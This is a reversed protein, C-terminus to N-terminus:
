TKMSNFIDFDTNQIRAYEKAFEDEYLALGAPIKSPDRGFQYAVEFLTCFGPNNQQKAWLFPAPLFLRRLALHAGFGNQIISCSGVDVNGLVVSIVSFPACLYDAAKPNPVTGQRIHQVLTQVTQAMRAYYVGIGPAPEWNEIFDFVNEFEDRLALLRAAASTNLMYSREAIVIDRLLPDADNPLLPEREGLLQEASLLHSSNAYLEPANKRLMEIGAVYENELIVGRYKTQRM